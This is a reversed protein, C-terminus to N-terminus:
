RWVPYEEADIVVPAPTPEQYGFGPPVFVAQMPRAPAHSCGVTLLALFLVTARM